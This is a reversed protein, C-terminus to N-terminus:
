TQLLNPLYLPIEIAPQPFAGRDVSDISVREKKFDDGFDLVEKV